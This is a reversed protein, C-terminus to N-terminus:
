PFPPSYLLGGRTWLENLGRDLQLPSNSGLNRHFVEGYSGVQTIIRRVWHDDLGLPAGVGPDEGLFRRLPPNTATRAVAAVNARTLGYEEAQILANLTWRVIDFWRDDGERVVPGLPEKSLVDPLIRMEGPRPAELLAFSAIATRDGTYAQCEKVFFGSRADELSVYRVPVLSLSRDKIVDEINRATTTNTQFCVRTGEPLDKVTKGPTTNWVLLGQGDYLSAGVFSVGIGADRKLTWTTNRSLLDVAGEVLADLRVSANLPVFEVQETDGLVGAAVARCFDADFGVWNGQTDVSSMGALGQNVGCKLLGREKIAEVTRGSPYGSPYITADAAPSAEPMAQVLASGNSVLIGLATFVTLFLRNGFQVRRM